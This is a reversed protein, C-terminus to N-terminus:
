FFRVAIFGHNPSFILIDPRFTSADYDAYAPFDYYVISDDLGLSPANKQLFDVLSRSNPDSKWRNTTIIIEM